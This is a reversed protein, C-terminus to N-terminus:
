RSPVLLAANPSSREHALPLELDTGQTIIWQNTHRLRPEVARKAQDSAQGGSGSIAECAPRPGETRLYDAGAQSAAADLRDAVADLDDPFLGAYVDLRVAASAHGLMRQIAKVNAGAAVALSAATHRLEHPTLGALGVCAAAQDFGRWRFNNNPLVGPSTFVLDDTAKGAIQDSLPEVLFRPIPVSRRHHTKPTGFVAKGNVETVSQAILLRRRELDVRRVRLAALEGWRLGTYALVLVILRNSGSCADALRAVQDHTLFTREHREVRPLRVGVAVNRTLRGDRVALALLLSFVRHAQRVTSPALGAGAIRRVWETVDAHTVASLPMREWVPLVRRRLLSAYRARTSPKLQVQAALWRAAWEGVTVRSLAPDIWEGRSVSAKM